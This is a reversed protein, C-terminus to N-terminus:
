APIESQVIILRNIFAMTMGLVNLGHAIRKKREHKKSTNFDGFQVVGGETRNEFEYEELSRNTKRGFYM